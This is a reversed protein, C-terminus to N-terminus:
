KPFRIKSFKYGMSKLLNDFQAMANLQANRVNAATLCRRKMAEHARRTLSAKDAETWKGDEYFTQTRAEDMFNEDLLGIAPLTVVVTDEEMTIWGEQVNHLDIGLRLTGYYIRSLESDGWFGRRVTDVLEEDVISLFEWQGISKIQAVQGPTIGIRDTHGVSIESENVSKYCMGVVVAVVILCVVVLTMKVALAKRIQQSLFKMM